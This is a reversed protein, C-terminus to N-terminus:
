VLFFSLHFHTLGFARPWVLALMRLRVLGNLGCVELAFGMAAGFSGFTEQLLPKM